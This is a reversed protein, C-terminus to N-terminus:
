SGKQRREKRNRNWEIGTRIIFILNRVTVVLLGVTLVGALVLAGIDGIM